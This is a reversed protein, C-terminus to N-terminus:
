SESVRLAQGPRYHSQKVNFSLSSKTWLNLTHFQGPVSCHENVQANVSHSISIRHEAIEKFNIGNCMYPYSGAVSFLDFTATIALIKSVELPTALNKPLRPSYDCHGGRVCIIFKLLIM